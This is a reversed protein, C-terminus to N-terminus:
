KGGEPQARPQGRRPSFARRAQELVGEREKAKPPPLGTLSDVLGRVFANRLIGLITPIPQAKPDTVSGTIPITTAVADRGPVDDSFIDLAADALASELKAGLGPESPRTGAGKLVPRLGGSLRGEVAQFRLSLDLVGADPVIGAKTRLLEGLEVLKLGELRAQGAFTLAKALPDATAFLSVRGTKQATGRAALVTPEGRALAPRSAFNELTAEIGHLWLRPKERERADIFLIEGDKIQARSIRFPALEGLRRGIEPAEEIEQGRDPADGEVEVVNLKPADLEVDAVVDGNLLERGHLGFQARAVEFFPLRSGGASVKEIRLDRIAYSLDLLRVEVDSFTGRMGDLGGLVRRTRWTVLPDLALRAALVLLVLAAAAVAVRRFRRRTRRM